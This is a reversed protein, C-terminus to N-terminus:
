GWSSTDNTREDEGDEGNEPGRIARPVGAGVPMLYDIAMGRRKAESILMPILDELKGREEISIRQTPEGKLVQRKDLLIGTVIALDKASAGALVFDDLYLLAKEINTDLLELCLREEMSGDGAGPAKAAKTTM